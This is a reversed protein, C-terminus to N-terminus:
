INNSEKQKNIQKNIYLCICINKKYGQKHVYTNDNQKQPLHQTKAHLM